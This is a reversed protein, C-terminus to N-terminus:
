AQADEEGIGATVAFAGVYDALGTEGPAIFDALATNARDRRTERAMQQRLTHLPALPAKRTDDTFLEVDDGVANAPWFGVVANATLWKEAVIRKLMAQADAFLKKAESGVVNDELIRPYKGQLEW